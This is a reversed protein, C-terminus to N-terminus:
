ERGPVFHVPATRSDKPKESETSALSRKFQEIANHSRVSVTFGVILLFAIGRAFSKTKPRLKLRKASREILEITAANLMALIFFWALLGPGESM